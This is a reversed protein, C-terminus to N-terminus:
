FEPVYVKVGVPPWHALEVENVTVTAGLMVGVNLKPVDMVIQAPVTAGDSGVVEDLPIVPVHLGDTISM